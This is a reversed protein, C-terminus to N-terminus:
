AKEIGGNAEAFANRNNWKAVILLVTAVALIPLFLIHSGTSWGFEPVLYGLAVGGIASGIGNACALVALGLNQGRVSPGMIDPVAAVVVTALVSSFIGAVVVVFWLGADTTWSFAWIFAVFLMVTGVVVMWKRDGLKDSIFGSLPSAAAGLFTTISTVLGAAAMDMGKAEMLFTPYYTNFSGNKTINDLMFAVGILCISMIAVRPLRVNLSKSEEASIETDNGAMRVQEASPAHYLFVVLVLAIITYVTGAWWVAQWNGDGCLAPALNLMVTSGLPMWMSWVGIALGLRRKPFWATLASPATVGFVGMGVGEIFRSVLLVAANGASFTGLLSGVIVSILAVIMVRKIGFRNVIGAAPFALIISVVTFSTMLWGFTSVDLGFAQMLVPAIPPVKFMNIPVSCSALFVVALILWAYPPTKVAGAGRAATAPMTKEANMKEEKEMREAAPFRGVRLPEQM